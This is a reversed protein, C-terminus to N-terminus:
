YNNRLAFINKQIMTRYLNESVPIFPSHLPLLHFFVAKPCGMQQSRTPTPHSLSRLHDPWAVTHLPCIYGKSSGSVARYGGARMSAYGELWRLMECGRM